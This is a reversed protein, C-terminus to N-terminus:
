ESDKGSKLEFGHGKGESYPRLKAWTRCLFLGRHHELVKRTLCKAPFIFSFGDLTYGVSFELVHFIHYM